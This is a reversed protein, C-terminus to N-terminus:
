RCFIVENMSHLYTCWHWYSVLLCIANLSWRRCAFFIDNNFTYFRIKNLTYVTKFSEKKELSHVALSLFKLFQEGVTVVLWSHRHLLVLTVITPLGLITSLLEVEVSSRCPKRKSTTKVAMVVTDVVHGLVNLLRNISATSLHNRFRLRSKNDGVTMRTTNHVPALLASRRWQCIYKWGFNNEVLSRRGIVRLFRNKFLRNLALYM